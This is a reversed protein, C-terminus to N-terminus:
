YWSISAIPIIFLFDITSLVCICCLYSFSFCCFVTLNRYKSNVCLVYFRRFYPKPQMRIHFLYSLSVFPAFQLHSTLSLLILMNGYFYKSKSFAYLALLFFGLAFSSRIGIYCLVIFPHSLYYFTTLNLAM